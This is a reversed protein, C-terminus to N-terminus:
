LDSGPCSRALWLRGCIWSRTSRGSAVNPCGNGSRGWAGESGSRLSRCQHRAIEHGSRTGEGHTRRQDQQAAAEALQGEIDLLKEPEAELRDIAWITYGSRTDVGHVSVRLRGSIVRVTGDIVAEVGLQRGIEAAEESSGKFRRVRSYSVVRLGKLNTLRTILAETIGDALYDGGSDSVTRFPLVAVSAFSRHPDGRANIWILAATVIAGLLAVATWIMPSPRARRQEAVVEEEIVTRSRIHEEIRLEGPAAEIQEVPATFRYGRRPHNEIWGASDGLAKRLLSIYQALTGEEVFTDPWLQKMMEDKGLVHGSNTVLLLLTDFAKPALAVLEGERYLLRDTADLRFAGFQYVHRAKIAM